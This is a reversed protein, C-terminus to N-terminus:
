GHMVGGEFVFEQREAELLTAFSDDVELNRDPILARIGGGFDEESLVVPRGLRQSVPLLLSEDGKSLQLEIRDKGAFDLAQRFKRCLYDPYEPSRRFNQLLEEVECFLQNKYENQIKVLRRRILLQDHSLEKNIQHRANEAEAKREIEAQKRRKARYIELKNEFEKQYADLEARAEAKASEVSVQYFHQIKEELTLIYM